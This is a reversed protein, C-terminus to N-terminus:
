GGRRLREMEARKANREAELQREEMAHAESQKKATELAKWCAWEYASLGDPYSVTAREPLGGLESATHIAHTLHPPEQGPKTPLLHCVECIQEIRLDPDAARANFIVGTKENESCSVEGPCSQYNLSRITDLQDTLQEVLERTLGVPCGRVRGDPM